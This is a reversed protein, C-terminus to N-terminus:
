HTRPPRSGWRNNTPPKGESDEIRPLQTSRKGSELAKLYEITEVYDNEIREPILKDPLRAYVYYLVLNCAWRVVQKDRNIGTKSFIANTDYKSHLADKIVQIATEEENDLIAPTNDILQDLRKDRIKSIYDARDIYNSM